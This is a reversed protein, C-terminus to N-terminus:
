PLANPAATGPRAGEGGLHISKLNRDFTDVDRKFVEAAEKATPSSTPLEHGQFREVQTRIPRTYSYAMDQKRIKRSPELLLRTRRDNLARDLIESDVIM